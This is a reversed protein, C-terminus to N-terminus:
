QAQKWIATPDVFHQTPVGAYPDTPAVPAGPAGPPALPNRVPLHTPPAHPIARYDATRKVMSQPSGSYFYGQPSKNTSPIPTVVQPFYTARRAASAAARSYMYGQGPLPQPKLPNLAKRRQISTM